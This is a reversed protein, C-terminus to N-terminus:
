RRSRFHEVLGLGERFDRRYGPVMSLAGVFASAGMGAVLVDAWAPMGPLLPFLATGCIGGVVGATELRLGAGLVDRIAIGTRRHLIVLGLPWSVAIYVAIAAAIVVVGFVSGVIAIAVAVLANLLSLRALDKALGRATLGGAVGSILRSVGAGVAVWSLIAGLHLWQSGFALSLLSDPVTVVVLVVALIPYGTAIFQLRLARRLKEDSDQVRAMAPVLVSGAAGSIMNLPVRVLQVARNYGGLSEAGFVRGIVVSDVNSEVYFLIASAFYQWGTKVHGWTGSGRVYRGPIWGAATATMVLGLLAGTLNQAVIAWYGAGFYASVIGVLASIVQSGISIRAMSTFRLERQLNAQYQTTMGNVLFIPSMVLAIPLLAAVGYAWAILPSALAIACSLLAGISANVWWLNDRQARSLEKAQITVTSLGMDRFMDAIGIVATVMAVLGFERPTLLRSMVVMSGTLVVFRVLQVVTMSAFGRAARRGVSEPAATGGAGDAVPSELPEDAGGSPDAASM